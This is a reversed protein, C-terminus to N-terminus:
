RRDAAAPGAGRGITATGAAAARCRADLSAADAGALRAPAYLERLRKFSGTSGASSGKPIVALPVATDITALKRSLELAPLESRLNEGVKGSIDAPM